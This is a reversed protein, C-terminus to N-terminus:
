ASHRYMYLIKKQRDYVSRARNHVRDYYDLFCSYSKIDTINWWEPPNTLQADPVLFSDDCKVQEGHRNSTVSDFKRYGHRDALFAVAESESISFKYYATLERLQTTDTYVRLGDIRGNLEPYLHRFYKEEDNKQTPQNNSCAFLCSILILIKFQLFFDDM